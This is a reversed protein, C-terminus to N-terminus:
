MTGGLTKAQSSFQTKLNKSVLEILQSSTSNPTSYFVQSKERRRILFGADTLNKLHRSVNAQTLGTDSVLQTVSKEESGVAFILKLRSVDGLAHFRVAIMEIAPASQPHLETKRSMLHTHFNAKFVLTILM